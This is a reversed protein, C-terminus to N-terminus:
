SPNLRFNPDGQDQPTVRPFGINANLSLFHSPTIVPQDLDDSIYTLPRGNVVAECEILLTEMNYVYLISRGVSKRLCRKVVQVMREYLRGAM